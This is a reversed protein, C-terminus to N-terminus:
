AAASIYLGTSNTEKIKGEMAGDTAVLM